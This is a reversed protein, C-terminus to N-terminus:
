DKKDRFDRKLRKKGVKEDTQESIRYFKSKKIVM